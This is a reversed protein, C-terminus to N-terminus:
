VFRARDVASIMAAMTSRALESLRLGPGTLEASTSSSSENALGDALVVGGDEFQTVLGRL